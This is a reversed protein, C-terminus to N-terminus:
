EGAGAEGDTPILRYITQGSKTKGTEIKVGTKRLGCIAARVTHSQWGLEKELQVTRSGNKRSVLRILKERKSGPKAVQGCVISSTMPHDTNASLQPKM